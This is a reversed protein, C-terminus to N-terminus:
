REIITTGPAHDVGLELGRLLMDTPYDGPFGYAVRVPTVGAAGLASRIRGDVVDVSDITLSPLVAGVVWEGWSAVSDVGRLAAQMMAAVHAGDVDHDFMLVAVGFPEDTRELWRSRDEIADVIANRNGLGTRADISSSVDLALRLTRVEDELEAIRRHAARLEDTDGATDVTM